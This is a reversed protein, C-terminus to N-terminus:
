GRVKGLARGRVGRLRLDFGKDGRVGGRRLDAEIERRLLLRGGGRMGDAFDDHLGRVRCGDRGRRAAAQARADRMGAHLARVQMPRMQMAGTHAYVPRADCEGM